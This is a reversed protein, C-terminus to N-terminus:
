LFRWELKIFRAFIAAFTAFKGSLSRNRTATKM